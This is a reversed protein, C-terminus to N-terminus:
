AGRIMCGNFWTIAPSDVATVSVDGGSGQQVYIEFYDGTGNAYVVSSVQMAWFNAAIQTGQQNTGRKYAAGNKYLVIMMEGTGSAGDLRVEANLQYYGEITPTFRSSAYNSNTDFEETQFLVKTLSGNTITQLIAAAYASFAPGNVVQKGAVQYPLATSMAGTDSLSMLTASYASNIIEVGGTSNLRFTKNPNTAGGSTNTVRLFDAYGTGGQTNAGNITIASGTATDPTYTIDVTGPLTTSGDANFTWNKSVGATNTRIQVYNNAYLEANVLGMFLATSDNDTTTLYATNAGFAALDLKSYGLGSIPGSVTINSLTTNVVAAVARANTFYQNTVETVNATTLDVINAKLALNSITAYSTLQNNTAYGTLSSNTIYGLQIVNSYVRTNTFYLNTLETVNSTTLDSTNAKLDLNSTTAYSSLQSNTAYGSLSSNTIYGLQTVNSYVRANTFYLSGNEAINATSLVVAGTLGNVSNVNGGGGSTATSNIRGNADLTINQGASFAAVARSNTFYLNTLEAVNATTLDAINAKLAVNSNTAYGIGIVNSYVRANTFYLNTLETVNASTINRNLWVNGQYTLVQGATPSTISVDSLHHLYPRLTPRVLIHGDGGARKTVAAVIIHTYPAAPETKTLGGVVAPDAYLIDGETYALTNLGNIKGFVTVYGFQNNTFNQTAVGIFWEPIYGPASMNNRLGIIHEGSAGGFMVAEGDAIAEGAKIKIYQEQGVQLTVGNAMGIDLTLDAANWAMQGTTVTFGASTNVSLFNVNANNVTIGNTTVNGRNTVTALTDTGGGGTASSNIRGNADITINGGATLSGIARANTFYLNTLEVVNATTLDAINAKLSLNAPTFNFVGTNNDYILNGNGSPTDVTVSLDTLAIGGGGSTVSRAVWLQSTANYSLVQNNTAGSVSAYDVDDLRKLEVEGSGPGTAAIKGIAQELFKLKKQVDNFNKEVPTPQPQQFSNEELKVEKHIHNAARSILDTPEVDETRPTDPTPTEETIPSTEAAQAQVLENSEEQVISLLEDLTPPKPYDITVKKIIDVAVKSADFLDNITNSRISEKIEQQLQNYRDVEEALAPDVPENMARAWKVLIQKEKISKM